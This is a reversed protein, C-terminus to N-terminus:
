RRIVIHQKGEVLPAFGLAAACEVARADLKGDVPAIRPLRDKFGVPGVAVPGLAVHTQRRIHTVAVRELHTEPEIRNVVAEVGKLAPKDVIHRYQHGLRAHGSGSRRLWVQQHGLAVNAQAMWVRGCAVLHSHGRHHEVVAALHCVIDANLEHVRAAIARHGNVPRLRQRTHGNAARGCGLDRQIGGAHLAALRNLHHDIREIQDGLAVLRVVLRLAGKGHRQGRQGVQHDVGAVNREVRGLRLRAVLHGHM